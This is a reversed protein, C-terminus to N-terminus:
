FCIKLSSLYGVEKKAILLVNFHKTKIKKPNKTQKSQTIEKKKKKKGKRKNFVNHSLWM